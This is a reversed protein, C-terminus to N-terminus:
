CRSAFITIALRRQYEWSESDAVLLGDGLVDFMEAFESGKPYNNFHANFCHNVTAPDCTILFNMNLFWPGFVMFTCGAERLVDVVRDHIYHLSSVILFPLMGVVPWNVPLASKQCRQTFRFISIWFFCITALFFEPYSQIFSWFSGMTTCPFSSCLSLSLADAAIPRPKVRQRAFKLHITKTYKYLFCSM